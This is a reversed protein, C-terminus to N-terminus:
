GPGHTHERDIAGINKHLQQRLKTVLGVRRLYINTVCLDELLLINSLQITTFVLYTQKHQSHVFYTAIVLSRCIDLVQKCTQLIHKCTCAHDSTM